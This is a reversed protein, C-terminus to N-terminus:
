RVTTMTSPVSCIGATKCRSARPTCPGEKTAQGPTGTKKLTTVEAFDSLFPAELAEDEATWPRRDTTTVPAPEDAAAGINAIGPVSDPVKAEEAPSAVRVAPFPDYKLSGDIVLDDPSRWATLGAATGSLETLAGGLHSWQEQLM